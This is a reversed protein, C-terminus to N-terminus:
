KRAGRSQSLLTQDDRSILSYLQSRIPELTQNSNRVFSEEIPLAAERLANGLMATSYGVKKGNFSMVATQTNRLLKSAATEEGEKLKAVASLFSERVSPYYAFLDVYATEIGEDLVRAAIRVRQANIQKWLYDRAAIVDFRKALMESTEVYVPQLESYMSRQLGQWRELKALTKAAATRVRDAQERTRSDQDKSWSYLLAIVSLIITLSTLVDSAKITRDLTLAM